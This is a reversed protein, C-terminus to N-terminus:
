VGHREDEWYVVVGPTKLNAPVTTGIAVLELHLMPTPNSEHPSLGCTKVTVHYAM